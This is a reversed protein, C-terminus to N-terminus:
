RLQWLRKTKFPIMQWQSRFGQAVETAGTILYGGKVMQAAIRDIVRKREEVTFYILVNRLFVVDFPGHPRVVAGLQDSVLNAKKYTLMAKIEPCIRWNTGEQNFFRVLMKVPMGRQVEMQTYLGENAYALAEDSLDTGLIHVRRDAQPVSEMATLAISIGEQGRSAAASWINIRTGPGKKHVLEPFILTKLAEYPYQDRFFLTENTTMADVVAHALASREDKRIQQALADLSPIKHKRLLPQLRSRLLYMKDKKVVIGSNKLLFSSIYEFERDSM